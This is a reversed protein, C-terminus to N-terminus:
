WSINHCHIVFLCRKKWRMKFDSFHIRVSNFTLKKRLLEFKFSSKEQNIIYM